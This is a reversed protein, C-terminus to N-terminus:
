VAELGVSARRCRTPDEALIVKVTTHVPVHPNLSPQSHIASPTESSEHFAIVPFIKPHPVQLRRLVRRRVRPVSPLRVLSLQYFLVSFSRKVKPQSNAHHKNTPRDRFKGRGALKEGVNAGVVLHRRREFNNFFGDRERWGDPCEGRTNGVRGENVKSSGSTTSMVTVAM